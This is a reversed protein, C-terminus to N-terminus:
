LKLSSKHSFHNYVALVAIFAALVPVAFIILWKVVRRDTFWGKLINLVSLLVPKVKDM